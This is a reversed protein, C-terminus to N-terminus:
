PLAERVRRPYIVLSDVFGEPVAPSPDDDAMVEGRGPHVLNMVADRPAVAVRGADDPCFFAPLEPPFEGLLAILEGVTM